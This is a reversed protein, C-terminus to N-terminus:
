DLGVTKLKERSKPIINRSRLSVKFIPINQRCMEIIRLEYVSTINALIIDM